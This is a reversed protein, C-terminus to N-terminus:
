EGLVLAATRRRWGGTGDPVIETLDIKDETIGLIRGHNQGIYNNPRTRHVTNDPAKIIAWIRGDQEVTGVMQLADLPYQELEEKGRSDDPRIGNNVPLPQPATPKEIVPPEFPDRLRESAYSHSTFNRITPLPELTINNKAKAQSIYTQLDSMDGGSSCASLLLSISCASFFRLRKM